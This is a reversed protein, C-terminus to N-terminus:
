KLHGYTLFALAWSADNTLILQTDLSLTVEYDPDDFSGYAQLWEYCERLTITCTGFNCKQMALSVYFVGSERWISARPPLSIMMIESSEKNM